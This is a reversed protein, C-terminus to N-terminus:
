NATVFRRGTISFHLTTFVITITISKQPTKSVVEMCRNMGHDINHLVGVRYCCPIACELTSFTWCMQAFYDTGSKRWKCSANYSGQSFSTATDKVHNSTRFLSIVRMSSSSVPVVKPLPTSMLNHSKKGNAIWIEVWKYNMFHNTHSSLSEESKCFRLKPNTEHTNSRPYSASIFLLWWSTAWVHM